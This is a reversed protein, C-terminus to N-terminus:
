SHAGASSIRVSIKGFKWGTAASTFNYPKEPM